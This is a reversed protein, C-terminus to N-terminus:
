PCDHPTRPRLLPLLKNRSPRWGWVQYLEYLRWLWISLLLTTLIVAIDTRIM